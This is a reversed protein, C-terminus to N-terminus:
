AGESLLLRARGADSLAWLKSQGAGPTTTAWGRTEAAGMAINARETGMGAGALMTRTTRTNPAAQADRLLRLLVMTDDSTVVATTDLSLHCARWTLGDEETTVTRLIRHPLRRALRNAKVPELVMGGDSKEVWWTLRTANLWASAGRVRHAKGKGESPKAAHHVLGCAASTAVTIRRLARTIRRADTNSNEEAKDGLLDALPDCFFARARLDRLAQTIRAECAPDDLNMGEDYVHVHPLVDPWGHARCMATLRNVMLSADDEGGSVILVPGPTPVRFHNFAPQGSAIAAALHYQITSKGSDGEGVFATLDNGLMLGDVAFALPTYTVTALCKPPSHHDVAAAENHTAAETAETRPRPTEQGTPPDPEPPPPETLDFRDAPWGFAAVIEAKTHPCTAQGKWLRYHGEPATTVNFRGRCLPCDGVTVQNSRVLGPLAAERAEAAERDAQMKAAMRQETTVYPAAANATSPM